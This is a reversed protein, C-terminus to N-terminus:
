ARARPRRERCLTISSALVITPVSRNANMFHREHEPFMSKVDRAIWDINQKRLSPSRVPDAAEPGPAGDAKVQWSREPEKGLDKACTIGRSDFLPASM